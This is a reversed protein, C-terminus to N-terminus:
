GRTDNPLMRLMPFVLKRKWVLQHLSDTGYTIIASIFRGSMEIHDTHSAALDPRGDTPDRHGTATQVNWTIGGDAALRWRLSQASSHLYCALLAFFLVKKM